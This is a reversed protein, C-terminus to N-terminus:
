NLSAFEADKAAKEKLSPDKSTAADLYKRAAASDGKRMAVVARLYDSRADEGDLAASAEDYRGCLILAVAKNIGQSRSAASSYDGNLIDIAGLNHDAESTASKKFFSVAREFDGQRMAIVGLANLIDPATTTLEKAKEAALATDDQDLASLVNNYRATESDFSESAIRYLLAKRAPDSTRSALRLLASEDLLYLQERAIKDLEEDSYNRYDIDAIFRARRLAPFVKTKMETFVQSMNRIESERVAPDSYMSLVRLILDKDELDSNAVATQFGEWDQGISSIDMDAGKGGSLKDWAKEASEARKDSLRANYDAGGEPSAYAVIRTGKVTAREDNGYQELSAQFDAISEGTLQNKRVEASNVEYMIQGEASKKLVDQYGDARYSYEGSTNALNCTVICADAVKRAPVEYTKNGYYIVPRLELYSREMGPKYPFDFKEVATGGAWAAVKYNDKIKEGQYTIPAASEEGGEYVLVPTVTMVATKNFYGKPYTVTITAPVRGAVAALVQPECSVQVNQAMKMQEAVSKSCSALTACFVVASLFLKYLKM